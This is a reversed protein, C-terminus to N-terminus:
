GSWKGITNFIAKERIIRKNYYCLLLADAKDPSRKYKKKWIKKSEVARRGKGDFSFERSILEQYLAPDNPISADEQQSFEFWMESIANPYKDENKAKSENNIGCVPFGNARLIDTVGGGVGTDDINVMAADPAWSMLRHALQHIDSKKEIFSDIIKSGKRKYAVTLDDGERAVDCGVFIQGVSNGDREQMARVQDRGMVCANGQHRPEGLWIHPYEDPNNELCELREMELVDPFFPNGDYNIHLGIANEGDYEIWRYTKGKWDIKMKRPKSFDLWRQALLHVPDTDLILNYTMWIDSGEERITPTLTTISNSTLSQAEECWVNDLKNMSKVSTATRDQLGKFIFESGISNVISKETVNFDAWERDVIKTKYISHVSDKISNQMERTNLIKCKRERSKALFIDACSESKAGGRGGWMFKYRANSNYYRVFAPVM